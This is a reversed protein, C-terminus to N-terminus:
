YTHAHLFVLWLNLMMAFDGLLRFNHAIIAQEQSFVSKKLILKKEGLFWIHAM